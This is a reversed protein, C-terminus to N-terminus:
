LGANGHLASNPDALEHELQILSSINGDTGALHPNQSRLAELMSNEIASLSAHAKRDPWAQGDSGTVANSSM